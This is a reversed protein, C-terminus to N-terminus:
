EGSSLFGNEMLLPCFSFFLIERCYSASEVLLYLSLLQVMWAQLISVLLTHALMRCKHPQLMQICLLCHCGVGTSKDLFDWPCLLRSPQLGQTASPRVRSLSKVKVKWKWANSFSLAVWELTRAQLIGPIPSGPPSGDIPDCLTLCSQLSKAAAVDSYASITVHLWHVKLHTTGPPVLPLSDAERQLLHLQCPNSGQTLFIGPTPSSLKSRHGQRSFEM